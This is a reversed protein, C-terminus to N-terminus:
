VNQKSIAYLIQFIFPSLAQLKTKYQPNNDIIEPITVEIDAHIHIAAQAGTGKEEYWLARTLILSRNAPLSRQEAHAGGM